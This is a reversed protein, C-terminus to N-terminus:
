KDFRRDTSRFQSLYQCDRRSSNRPYHHFSWRFFPKFCNVNFWLEFWSREYQFPRQQQYNDRSFDNFQVGPCLRTYQRGLSPHRGNGGLDSITQPSVSTLSMDFTGGTNITMPADPIVGAGTLALPAQTSLREGQIRTPERCRCHQLEM